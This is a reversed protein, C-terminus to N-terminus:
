SKSCHARVCKYPFTHFHRSSSINLFSVILEVLNFNLHSYLHNERSICVKNAHKILSSLIKPLLM